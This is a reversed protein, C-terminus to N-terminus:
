GVALSHMGLCTRLGQRLKFGLDLWSDLLRNFQGREIRKKWRSQEMERKREELLLGKRGRENGWKKGGERGGEM